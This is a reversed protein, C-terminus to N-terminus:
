AEPEQGQEVQATEPVATTEVTEPEAQEMTGHLIAMFEDGTITEKKLLYQALEDMKERHAELIERAEKHAKKVLDFVAGDIRAATEPACSLSTDGSLYANNVTELAVMDFEETMGFRTIMARALKTAQEIDNSAGSTVLNFVVEEASRGGTLTVIKNYLEERSMLVKEQTDVQMTYGLAGSTRPIITIKHVPASDKQCAAVLAHGIEHYAIVKKEEPSIVAGKRQAGAIVVEVSEELDEQIVESRGMRVARLAAENVINALEAGSAGSTALAITHFDVQPDMKVDHSHVKLIAERGQLDPLEVPVRRDFRGPRLLAKDLVEPRNTAALIRTDVKIPTSGGVPTFEKDQLARLLKSQLGLPMDGIEDLFLTGNDAQELKGKKDQMAGTFAGRKYGFFELELLNEPIAACNVVVFRERYRKGANHIARAVLEKGTGSEGTILVNTDIDKVRDILMYVRQMPASEGIIADFRSKSELQDSLYYIQENLKRINGAQQMIVKLEEINIPKTLYTFAGKQMANVSTDISGFATMMIVETNPDIRKIRELVELGNEEGLRLDLLVIDAGEAEMSALAPLSSTFTKVRYLNKLALQLSVCISPEDDIIYVTRNM